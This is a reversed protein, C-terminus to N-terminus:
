ASVNIFLSYPNTGDPLSRLSPPSPVLKRIKPSPPETSLQIAPITVCYNKIPRMDSKRLHEMEQPFVKTLADTVRLDFLREKHTQVHQYLRELFHFLQFVTDYCFRM